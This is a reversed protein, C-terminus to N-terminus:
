QALKKPKKPHTQSSKKTHNLLPPLMLLGRLLLYLLFALWFAHNALLPFLTLYILFFITTAGAIACLMLRTRTLGIAIGDATFAIFGALPIAIAWPRYPTAANIVDTNDTLLRLLAHSGLAYILTFTLATAASWLLIRRISQRLAPYNQAGLYKGCIAEAAFALGDIFYSFLTFLQLLLTNVALIVAGQIAGARTFWVTVAILCLTRLFIHANITFFHRLQTSDLIQRWPAKGPKALTLALLCGTYQATLTGYAIGRIDLHLVYVFILSAAINVINITLSIFMPYRTNQNGVFWGTVSYQLLMAPAGFILINFYCEAPIRTSPRPALLDLALHGLPKRMAILLLGIAIAITASRLAILTNDRRNGAGFAQATLGSTGFRLFGFLWYLMNFVTGGVAIAAIYDASGLHGVIALDVLSLLPTTINAVIAPAAIALISKNLSPSKM